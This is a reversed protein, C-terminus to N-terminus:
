AHVAPSNSDGIMDIQEATLDDCVVELSLDYDAFEKEEGSTAIATFAM